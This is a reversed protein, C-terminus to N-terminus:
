ATPYTERHPECVAALTDAVEVATVERRRMAGALDNLSVIGILRRTADIVPIRRVQATAMMREVEDANAEKVCAVVETSMADAVPIAALPQGRTYAAMCADRDTVIGVLHGNDDVVPIAGIDHDWMLQAARALTDASRCAQVDRTMISAIKM